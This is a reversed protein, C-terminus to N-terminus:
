SLIFLFDYLLFSDSQIEGKGSVYVKVTYASFIDHLISMTGDSNLVWWDGCVYDAVMTHENVIGLFMSVRVIFCFFAHIFNLTM